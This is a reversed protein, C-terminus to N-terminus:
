QGLLLLIIDVLPGNITQGIIAWCVAMEAIRRLTEVLTTM